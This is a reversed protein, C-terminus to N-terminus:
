EYEEVLTLAGSTSVNFNVIFTEDILSILSFTGSTAVKGTLRQFVISDEGLTSSALQIRPDFTYTKVGNSGTYGTGTFLIAETTTAYVGYQTDGESSLTKSRAESILSHLRDRETSLIKAKNLNRFAAFSITTLIVVIVTVILLEILTFGKQPIKKKSKSMSM